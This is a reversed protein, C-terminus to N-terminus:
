KGRIFNNEKEQRLKKENKHNKLKLLIKLM